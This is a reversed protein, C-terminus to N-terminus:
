YFFVMKIRPLYSVLLLKQCFRAKIRVNKFLLVVDLLLIHSIVVGLDRRSRTDDAEHSSNHLPIINLNVVSAKHVHTHHNCTCACVCTLLLLKQM